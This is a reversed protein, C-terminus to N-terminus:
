SDSNSKQPSVPDASPEASQEASPEASQEALPEASQEVSPAAAQEATQKPFWEDSFNDKIEGCEQGHWLGCVGFLAYAYGILITICAVTVCLIQLLGSLANGILLLASGLAICYMARRFGFRARVSPSKDKPLFSFM